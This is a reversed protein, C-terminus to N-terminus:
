LVRWQLPPTPPYLICDRSHGYRVGTAAYPIDTGPLAYCARPSIAYCARLSIAPCYWHRAYTVPLRTAGYAIDTGRCLVM